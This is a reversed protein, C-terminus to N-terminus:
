RRGRRALGGAFAPPLAAFAPAAAAFAPAAAALSISAAITLGDAKYAADHGEDLLPGRPLASLGGVTALGGAALYLPLAAQQAAYDVPYAVAPRAPLYPSGGLFYDAVLPAKYASGLMKYQSGPQQAMLFPQADFPAAYGVCAQGFDFNM